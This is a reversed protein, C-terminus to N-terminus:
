VFTLRSRGPNVQLVNLREYEGLAASVQAPSFGRAGLVQLAHPLPVSRGGPGGLERRTGFIAESPRPPCRPAPDPDGRLSDRAAELLRLAESVDDKEVVAGLRLRA